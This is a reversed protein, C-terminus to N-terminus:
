GIKTKNKWGVCCWRSNSFSDIPCLFMFKFLQMFLSFETIVFEIFVLPHPKFEAFEGEIWRRTNEWNNKPIIKFSSNRPFSSFFFPVTTISYFNLKIIYFNNQVFFASLVDLYYRLFAYQKTKEFRCFFFFSRAKGITQFPIQCKM